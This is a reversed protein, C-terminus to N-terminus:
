YRIGQVVEAYTAQIRAFLAPKTRALAAANEALAVFTTTVGPNPKDNQTSDKLTSTQNDPVLAIGHVANIHFEQPLGLNMHCLRENHQIKHLSPM